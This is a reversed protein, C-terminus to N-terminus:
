CLHVLARNVMGISDWCDVGPDTERQDGTRHGHGLGDDEEDNKSQHLTFRTGAQLPTGIRVERRIMQNTCRHRVRIEKSMPVVLGNMM